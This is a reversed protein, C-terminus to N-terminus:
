RATAPTPSPTLRAPPARLGGVERDLVAGEREAGAAEQGALGADGLVQVAAGAQPGGLVGVVDYVAGGRVGPDHVDVVVRQDQGVAAREGLLAAGPVGDDDGLVYLSSRLASTREASSRVQGIARSWREVM